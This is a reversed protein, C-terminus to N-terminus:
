AESGLRSFAQWGPWQDGGRGHDRQCTEMARPIARPITRLIQVTTALNPGKNV